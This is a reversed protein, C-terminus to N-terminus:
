EITEAWFIVTSSYSGPELYSPIGELRTTVTIPSDGFNIIVTWSLADDGDLKLYSEYFGDIDDRIDTIVIVSASGTNAITLRPGVVGIGPIINGFSVEAPSVSIAIVGGNGAAAPAWVLAVVVWLAATIFLFRKM